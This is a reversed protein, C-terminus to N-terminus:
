DLLDSYDKQAYGALGKWPLTAPMPERTVIMTSHGTGNASTSEIRRPYQEKEDWLVQVRANRTGGEYWRAGAPAGRKGPQMRKIQEPDLLQSATTWKGDFGISAYDVPAIEVIMREHDNVLRVRMSGDDQRVVWRAAAALDMHKHGKDGAKHEDEDHAHPPLVRVVWSQNDRRILRESFRNIRTVGDAGLVTIDHDVKVALDAGHALPALGILGALLFTKM